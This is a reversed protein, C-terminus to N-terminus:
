LGWAVLDNKNLNGEALVYRENLIKLAFDMKELQLAIASFFGMFESGRQGKDYLMQFARLGINGFREGYAGMKAEPYAGYINNIKKCGKGIMSIFGDDTKPSDLLKEISSILDERVQESWFKPDAKLYYDIFGRRQADAMAQTPDPEPDKQPTQPVQPT